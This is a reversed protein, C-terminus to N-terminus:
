SARLKAAEVKYVAEAYEHAAARQRYEAVRYELRWHETAPGALVDAVLRAYDHRTMEARDLAKTARFYFADPSAVYGFEPRTPDHHSM